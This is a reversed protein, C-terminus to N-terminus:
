GSGHMTAAAHRHLHVKAKQLHPELLQASVHLLICACVSARRREADRHRRCADGRGWPVTSRLARSVRGQHVHQWRYVARCFVASM